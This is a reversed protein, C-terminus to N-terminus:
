PTESGITWIQHPFTIDDIWAADDGESVSGDKVYQWEFIRSGATVPYSVTFWDKEGSWEGKVIGNISFFLKDCASESSIKASFSIEGDVCDLMVTLTTDDDDDVNAAKVSYHGTHAADSVVHWGPGGYSIWGLTSLDGSEFDDTALRATLEGQSVLMPYGNIPSMRWHDDGGNTTEETFDWGADLYTQRDRMEAMTLGTGTASSSQGSAELDWFSEQAYGLYHRGVLGGVYSSRGSVAGASYCRRTTSERSYGILGGVYDVADDINSTSYCDLTESRRHDGILGGVYKTGSIQGTSCCLTMVTEDVAGALGGVEFRGSVDSNSQSATITTDSTNGVLGGVCNRGTLSGASSCGVIRAGRAEATLGGAQDLQCEISIGKISLDVVEAGDSLVGFFGLHRTGVIHLNRIAHGRGDFRGSFCPIVPQSATQNGPLMPDLELDALLVFDRNWLASSKAVKTLQDVNEIEFPEDPTGAGGIWDIMPEPVIQGATGEWALRPYDGGPELRWSPDNAFGNLGLMEADMMETHSLGAGGDSGEIGSADTDWVSDEICGAINAGVLGGTIAGAVAGASYCDRVSGSSVEGILGGVYYNGSVAGLSYCNLTTGSYSSGILGGVMNIGKVVNVSYCNATRGASRGALSGVHDESGQISGDELALDTVSARGGLYGFLGLYGAGQIKLNRLVHGDGDFCGHFSPIVAVTWTTGSLSIDSDLRYHATPRYAVAALEEPTAILYPDTATGQGRLELPEYGSFVALIPYGGGDAMRWVGACGNGTEHAFDWGSGSFTSANQMQATTLGTGRASSGQGSTETDWFCNIVGRSFLSSGVLGGTLAGTGSVVGTSYSNSVSGYNYGLLGGVYNSGTVSGLSYSNSISAESNGGALGGIANGSGTVRATSCCNSVSGAYNGGVMGGVYGGGTVAGTCCCNWISGHHNYGLLGGVWNGSGQISVDEMEVDRVVARSTLYGFLGLFEQGVIHLNRIVHHNGVFVGTFPVGEFTGESAGNEGAIVARDFTHGSLDIDAVQLFYKDYDAPTDGLEILDQASAILYPDGAVGQGGSYGYLSGTLLGTCIIVAITLSRAM